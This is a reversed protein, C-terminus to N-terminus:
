QSSLVMITMLLAAVGVLAQLVAYPPPDPARMGSVSACANFGIWLAVLALVVYISRPRGLALTIREIGRQHSSVGAESRARLSAITEVNQNIREPSHSVQHTTM